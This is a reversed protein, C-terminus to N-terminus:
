PSEGVLSRQGLSEEPLFVPTSQCARRWPIKWVWPDFRHRRHRLLNKVVSGGPFDMTLMHLLFTFIYLMVNNLSALQPVWSM